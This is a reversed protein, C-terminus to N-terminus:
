YIKQSSLFLLNEEDHFVVALSSFIARFLAIKYNCGRNEYPSQGMPFKYILYLLGMFKTLSM